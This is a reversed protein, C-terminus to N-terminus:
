PHSLYIESNEIHYIETCYGLTVPDHSVVLIAMHGKLQTLKELISRRSAIDLANTAEDLILVAPNKYLARAISIRQKQGGSIMRGLQGVDTNLGYPLTSIWADLDAIHSVEKLRELDPESGFCINEKISGPFLYTDQRVLGICQQWTQIQASKLIEGDIVLEGNWPKLLGCIISTLTSKGSGSAGQLGTIRGKKIRIMVNNLVPAGESYGFSIGRLEAESRFNFRSDSGNPPAEVIRDPLFEFLFSSARISHYSRVIRNVSPMVRFALAAFLVILPSILETQGLREMILVLLFVSFIIATELIRPPLVGSLAYISKKAQYALAKQNQFAQFIWDSKGHLRIEPHALVAMDVLQQLRPNTDNSLAGMKSLNKRTLRLIFLTTPVITFLLFLLVKWHGIGALILALLLLVAESIILIAPLILQDASQMTVMIVENIRDYSTKTKQSVEDPDLQEIIKQDAFKGAIAYAGAILNNFLLSTIGNKFLFVGFLLFLRESFDLERIVADFGFPLFAGSANGSIVEGLIKYLVLVALLDLVVLFTASVM